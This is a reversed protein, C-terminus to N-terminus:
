IKRIRDVEKELPELEKERGFQKLKERLEDLERQIKPLWERKIRERAQKEKQQIEAALDELSKKLDNYEESQPYQQLDREFKEIQEKFFSFGSALDKQLRSFFDSEAPVGAVTTGSDLPTGGQKTLLVRLARHDSRENDDVISFLSYQTVAHLFGKDITVQVTYDGDPNYKVAQVSGIQNGEFIVRDQRVLGSLNDFTVNLRIEHSRCGSVALLFIFCATMTRTM